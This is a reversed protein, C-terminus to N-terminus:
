VHASMPTINRKNESPSSKEKLFISFIPADGITAAIAVMKEIIIIPFPTPMSKWQPVISRMKRPPISAMLEVVMIYLANSSKPSCCCRNAPITILTSMRSSIRAITIITINDAMAEPCFGSPPCISVESNFIPNKRTSQKTTPMKRMGQIRREVRLSIFLSTSSTNESPKHQAM